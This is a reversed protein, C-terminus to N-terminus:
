NKVSKYNACGGNWTHVPQRYAISGAHNKLEYYKAPYNTATCGAAYPFCITKADNIYFYKAWSYNSAQAACSEVTWFNSELTLHKVAWENGCGGTRIFKASFHDVLDEGTPVEMALEYNKIQTLRNVKEIKVAEQTFAQAQKLNSM